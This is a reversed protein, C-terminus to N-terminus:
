EKTPKQRVGRFNFSMGGDTPPTQNTPVTFGPPTTPPTDTVFATPNAEMVGKMYDDAGLFKGDELKFGKEIFESRLAKKALDNAFKHGSLFGDVAHEYDKAKIKQNLAETDEKYKTEWEKASKQIAEIDMTEFEKLKGNVQEVTGNLSEVKTKLTENESKVTNLTKGHEAMVSNIQEDTLTGLSKLFERTM